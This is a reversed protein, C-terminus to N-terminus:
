MIGSIGGEPFLRKRFMRKWVRMGSKEIQILDILDFMEGTAVTSRSPGRSPGKPVSHRAACVDAVLLRREEALEKQVSSIFIRFRM